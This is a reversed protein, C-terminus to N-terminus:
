VVPWKKLARSLEVHDEAYDELRIGRTAAEVAQRMATAGKMTGDPHGHIGGGAQIVTDNGFIEVLKPVMGPHLGGSAVPLVSRVGHMPEKCAAINARVEEETEAMKGVATGVHLQDVGLLRAVRALVVMNIGHVRSRTFAAHGARHAHIILNFGTDRMAQLSSWGTTLIDIMMYRGGHDEVYQARRKMEEVEATVNVLYVKTEGTESEARDRAELTQVVRDEFPNFAQSSLNEDDKVVDCGGSWAEYAVQAHDATVLGLKPKIITGVLPRDRIGTIERIGQIGYRPGHFSNTLERPFHIDNLRLHKVDELGFVNGAVSSLINPMNGPEFLELPYAIKVENGEISYVKAALRQMYPKETSLETWTGVSSEAAVGGAIVKLPQNLPEVHFECVLDTEKPEYKTDVFDIYRM